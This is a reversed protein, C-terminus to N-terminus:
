CTFCVCTRVTSFLSSVVTAGVVVVVELLYFFAVVAPFLPGVAPLFLTALQLCPCVLVLVLDPALDLVLVLVFGLELYADTHADHTTRVVRAVLVKAMMVTFPMPPQKFLIGAVPNSTMHRHKTFFPM